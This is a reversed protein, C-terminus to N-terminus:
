RRHLRHRFRRKQSNGFGRSDEVWALRCRKKPLSADRDCDQNGSRSEQRGRVHGLALRWYRIGVGLSVPVAFETPDSVRASAPASRSLRMSPNRATSREQRSLERRDAPLSSCRPTIKRPFPPSSWGPAAFGEACGHGTDCRPRRTAVAPLPAGTVGITLNKIWVCRACFVAKLAALWELWAM